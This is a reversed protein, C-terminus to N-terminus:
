IILLLDEEEIAACIGGFSKSSCIKGTQEKNNLLTLENIWLNIASM